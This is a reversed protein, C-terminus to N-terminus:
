CELLIRSVMEGKTLVHVGIELCGDPLMCHLAKAHGLQAREPHSGGGQGGAARPQRRRWHQHPEDEGGPGGEGRGGRQRRRRHDYNHGAWCHLRVTVTWRRTHLAPHRMKQALTIFTLFCCAQPNNCQVKLFVALQDPRGSGLLTFPRVM